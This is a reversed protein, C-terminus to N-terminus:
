RLTVTVTLESGSRQIRVRLHDGRDRHALVDSLDDPLGITAGDMSRIVDGALLGAQEGASGSAVTTIVVGRATAECEVGMPTTVPTTRLKATLMTATTPVAAVAVRAQPTPELQDSAWWLGAVGVVVVVGYLMMAM